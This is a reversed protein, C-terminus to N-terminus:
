VANGEPPVPEADLARAVEWAASVAAGPGKSLVAVAGSRRLAKREPPALDRGTVV